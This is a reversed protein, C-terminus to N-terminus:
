VRGVDDDRVGFSADKFFALLHSPPLAPTPYLLDGYMALQDVVHPPYTGLQAQAAELANLSGDAGPPLINLFGTADGFGRYHGVGQAHVGEAALTVVLVFLVR